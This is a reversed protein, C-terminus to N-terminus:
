PCRSLRRAGPQICRRKLQPIRPARIEWRSARGITGPRTIRLEVVAGRRLRASRLHRLMSLRRQNRRVRVTASRKACGRGRCTLRVLDGRRVPRVNMATFVTYGRPYTAWLGEIRRGLLPFPADRGNCDQDIGDGPRDRVGPRIGADNDNCDLPPSVGDGDADTARPPPPQPLPTTNLLVTVSNGTVNAVTIDPRGDANYDAVAVATAGRDTPVPSGADPTFGGAATQLLVSVTSANQNAVVLDVRGDSNFDGTAVGVPGDGVPMPPLAAFGGTPQRILLSVTDSGSNTVVLDPRGDGNLDRPIVFSPSMGVPIPTGAEPAFGFGPGGLLVTVTGSGTNTIALDPDGDANFDSVAVYRPQVQTPITGVSSLGTPATRQLIRVRGNDWEAAAIDVLTDGNFDGAGAASLRFGSNFPAAQDLVFGGAGQRLLLSVHGSVFAPVAIDPRTDGNLDAVTAFSPGSAGTGLGFPSGTEPAFGNPQRLLVSATSSTGNITAVDPRGDGNFDVSFVDHPQAGVDYPSGPEQTFDASATGAGALVAVVVATAALLPLRRGHGSMRRADDEVRQSARL